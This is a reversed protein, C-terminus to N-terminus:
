LLMVLCKLMLMQLHCANEKNYCKFVLFIPKVVKIIPQKKVEEINKIITQHYQPNNQHTLRILKKNHHHIIWSLILLELMM